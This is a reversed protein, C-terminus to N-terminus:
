IPVYIKQLLEKYELDAQSYATIGGGSRFFYKGNRNEIFRISVASDFSHGDYIGFIGTYFGRKQVETDKIISITKKKPAGSISGAPLLKLLDDGFNEKWNENLTGTIVSSTQLIDGKHTSIKEVYRFSEVKIRKAIIALDNRMLDVITHHEWKEKENNLLLNEADPLTADITGKMPCTFIKNGQIKIFREPSFVVFQNDNLLKFPAQSLHFIEKLSLNLTIRTPFTLNLLFSNGAKLHKMVRNFKKTYVQQNIPFSQLLVEKRELYDISNTLGNFSYLIGNEKAEDLKCVQFEELEYDIFFLYPIDETTYRTILSSFQHIDM